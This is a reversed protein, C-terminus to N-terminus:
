RRSTGLDLYRPVICKEGFTKMNYNKFMLCLSTVKITTKIAVAGLGFGSADM